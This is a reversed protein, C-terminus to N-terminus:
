NGNNKRRAGTYKSLHYFIISGLSNSIINVFLYAITKVSIQGSCIFYFLNAICHEAGILIFLMIPMVVLIPHNTKKYQNVALYMLIGCIAGMCFFSIISQSTKNIFIDNLKDINPKGNIYYVVCINIIGIINGCLVALKNKIDSLTLKLSYIIGTYLKYGSILITLLGFSFLFSGIIKDNIIIYSYASLGIIVGALYSKIFM